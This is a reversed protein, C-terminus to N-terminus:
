KARDPKGEETVAPVDASTVIVASSADSSVTVPYLPVTWKVDVSAWATRGESEVRVLPVPVNETVKLVAADCDTVAVSVAVEDTLPVSLVVTSGAAAVVNV